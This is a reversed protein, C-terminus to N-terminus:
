SIQKWNIRSVCWTRLSVFDGLVGSKVTRLACESERFFRRSTNRRGWRTFISLCVHLKNLNDSIYISFYDPSVREAHRGGSAILMDLSVGASPLNSKRVSLRILLLVSETALHLREQQTEKKSHLNEHVHLANTGSATFEFKCEM